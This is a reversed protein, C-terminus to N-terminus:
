ISTHSTTTNEITIHHILAMTENNLVGEDWEAAQFTGLFEYIIFDVVGFFFEENIYYLATRFEDKTGLSNM